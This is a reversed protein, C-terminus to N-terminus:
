YQPSLCSEEQGNPVLKNEPYQLSMPSRSSAAVFTRSIEKHWPFRYLKDFRAQKETNERGRSILFKQFEQIGRDLFQKKLESRQVAPGQFRTEDLIGIRSFIFGKEYNIISAQTTDYYGTLSKTFKDAESFVVSLNTFDSEKIEQDSGILALAESIAWNYIVSVALVSMCSKQADTYNNSSIFSSLGTLSRRDTTFRLFTRAGIGLSDIDLSAKIISNFADNDVYSIAPYNAFIEFARKPNQKRWDSVVLRLATVLSWVLDPSSAPAKLADNTRTQAETSSPLLKALSTIGAKRTNVSDATLQAFVQPLEDDSASLNSSFEAAVASRVFLSGHKETGAPPTPEKPPIVDPSLSTNDGEVGLDPEEVLAIYESRTM